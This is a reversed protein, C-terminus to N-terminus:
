IMAGGKKFPFGDLREDVINGVCANWELNIRALSKDGNCSFYIM